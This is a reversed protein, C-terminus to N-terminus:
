DHDVMKNDKRIIDKNIQTQNIQCILEWDVKQKIPLFIDRGFVSKELSYFKLM